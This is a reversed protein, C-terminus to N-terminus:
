AARGQAQATEKVEPLLTFRRAHAINWAHAYTAHGSGALLEREGLFTYLEAFSKVEHPSVRKLLHMATLDRPHAL